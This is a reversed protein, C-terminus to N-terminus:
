SQPGFDASTVDGSENRDILALWNEANALFEAESVQGDSNTDNFAMIMGEQVRGMKGQAHEGQGEMDAQRADDFYSYEEANLFGNEDSDFTYFVDGRKERLEALTVIGDNNQDWNEIFHSGPGGQAAATMPLLILVSLTAIKM